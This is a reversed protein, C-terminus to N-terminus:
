TLECFIEANARTIETNDPNDTGQPTTLENNETLDTTDQSAMDVAAYVANPFAAFAVTFTLLIALIKIPPNFSIM